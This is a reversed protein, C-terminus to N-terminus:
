DYKALQSLFPTNPLHRNTKNRWVAAEAELQLGFKTGVLEALSNVLFFYKWMEAQFTDCKFYKGKSETQLKRSFIMM